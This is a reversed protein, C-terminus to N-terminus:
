NGAPATGHMASHDMAGHQGHDMGQMAEAEEMTLVPVSIVVEGADRFVLTLDFVEGPVLPANLGMFMVHDAGRQLMHEGGAPIAFGGEVQRMKAVGDEMIHTHLEVRASVNARADILQDDADASNHIVMFAAGAMASAGASIAYPHDVTIEAQAVTAFSLVAAAAATLSKLM